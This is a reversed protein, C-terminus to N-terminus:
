YNSFPLSPPLLASSFLDLEKKNKFNEYADIVFGIDDGEYYNAGSSARLPETQYRDKFDQTAKKDIKRLSGKTLGHDEYLYDVLIKCVTGGSNWNEYSTLVIDFDSATFFPKGNLNVPGFKYKDKYRSIAGERLHRLVSPPVKYKKLLNDVTEGNKYDAVLKKVEKPDYRIPTGSLPTLKWKALEGINKAEKAQLKYCDLITTLFEPADQIIIKWQALPKEQLAEQLDEDTRLHVLEGDTDELQLLISHHLNLKTQLEKTLSSISDSKIEIRHSKGDYNVKVKRM